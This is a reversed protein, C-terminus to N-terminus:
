RKSQDDWASGVSGVSGVPDISMCKCYCGSVPCEVHEQFWAILHQSHGGHRCTQCWTFWSNFPSLKSTPEQQIHCLESSRWHLAPTGLHTLCLSCRPLAKRCSPCSQTRLKNTSSSINSKGQFHQQAQHTQQLQLQQQQQELGQKSRGVLRLYSSVSKGCFNCSVFLQQPPSENSLRKYWEIDFFSRQHWLRWCDLISKYSEVWSKARQDYQVDSPLSQLIILSVTQVDSTLEIHRELLDLGEDSVGTLLLGDLNGQTVM